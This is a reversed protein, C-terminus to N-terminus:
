EPAAEGATGPDFPSPPAEEENGWKIAEFVTRCDHCYHQRFALTTGFDTLKETNASGCFPCQTSGAEGSRENSL